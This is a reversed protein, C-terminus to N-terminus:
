THVSEIETLNWEKKEYKMDNVFFNDILVKAAIKRKNNTTENTKIKKNKILQEMVLNVMNESKFTVGTSRNMSDMEDMILQNKEDLTITDKEKEKKKQINKKVKEEM